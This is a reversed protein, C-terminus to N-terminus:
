GFYLFKPAKRPLLAFKRERILTPDCHLNDIMPFEGMGEDCSSERRM